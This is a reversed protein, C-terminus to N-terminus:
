LDFGAQRQMELRHNDSHEYPNYHNLNCGFEKLSKIKNEDTWEIM